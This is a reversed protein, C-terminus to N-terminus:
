YNMVNFANRILSTESSGDSSLVVTVIDFRTAGLWKHSVVYHNAVKILRQRKQHDVASEPPAIPNSRTKVEVIVLEDGDMAVIDVENKGYRYNREVVIYGLRQLYLSAQQEGDNGTALTAQRNAQRTPHPFKITPM